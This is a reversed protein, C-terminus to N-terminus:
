RLTGRRLWCWRLWYWRRLGREGLKWRLLRSRVLSRWWGGWGEVELGAIKAKLAEAWALDVREVQVGAVGVEVVATGEPLLMDPVGSRGVLGQGLNVVVVPRCM